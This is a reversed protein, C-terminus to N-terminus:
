RLLPRNLQTRFNAPDPSSQPGAEYFEFLEPGPIHGAAVIWDDFEEWAAHLGEYPGRYITRAVQAAPLHGPHVRGAGSVDREVTVGLEFDFVEPDIRFHHSFVPGTAAIGQAAIAGLLEGWAPGMVNRIEARPVTMRIAATLAAASQVIEPTDIM